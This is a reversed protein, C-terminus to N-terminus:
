SDLIDVTDGLRRWAWGQPLEYPTESAKIPPLPKTKCMKGERILQEKEALIREFLETAPEDDPDQPVLKGRVALQLIAAELHAVDDPTTLLADFQDFLLDTQM